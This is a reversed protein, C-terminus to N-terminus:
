KYLQFDEGGLHKLSKEMEECEAQWHEALAAREQWTAFKADALTLPVIHELFDAKDGQARQYIGYLEAMCYPSHLYKDSLVVIVLDARTIRKMFASIEDGVRMATKDRVVEWSEAALKLCLGEVVQERQRASESSDDGWAYSLFISRKGPASRATKPIAM